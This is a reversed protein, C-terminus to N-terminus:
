WEQDNMEVIKNMKIKFSGSAVKKKTIYPIKASENYIGVSGDKGLYIEVCEELPNVLFEQNGFNWVIPRRKTVTEPTKSEETKTLVVHREKDEGKSSTELKFKSALNHVLRRYYSNMPELDLTKESMKMFGALLDECESLFEDDKANQNLM